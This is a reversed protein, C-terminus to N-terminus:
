KKTESEQIESPEGVLQNIWKGEEPTVYTIDNQKKTEEVHDQEDYLHFLMINDYNDYNNHFEKITYGGIKALEKDTLIIYSLYGKWLDPLHDMRKFWGHYGAHWCYSFRTLKGDWVTRGYIYAIMPIMDNTYAAFERINGAMNEADIKDEPLNFGALLVKTRRYDKLPRNPVVGRLRPITASTM